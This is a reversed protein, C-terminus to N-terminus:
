LFYLFVKFSTCLSVPIGLDVGLLSILLLTGIFRFIPLGVTRDSLSYFLITFHINALALTPNGTCESVDFSEIWFIKFSDFLGLGKVSSQGPIFHNLKNRLLCWFMAFCFVSNIELDLIETVSVDILYQNASTKNYKVSCSLKSINFSPRLTIM